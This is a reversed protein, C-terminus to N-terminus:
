QFDEIISERLYSFDGWEGLYILGAVVGALLIALLRFIRNEAKLLLVIAGVLSGLTLVGAYRHFTLAYGLLLGYLLGGMLEAFLKSLINWISAAPILNGLWIGLLIVLLLLPVNFNIADFKNAISDLIATSDPM